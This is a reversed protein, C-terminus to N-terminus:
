PYGPRTCGNPSRSTNLMPENRTAGPSPALGAVHADSMAALARCTHFIDAQQPHGDAVTRFSDALAQEANQALRVYTAVHPM